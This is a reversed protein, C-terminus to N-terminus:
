VTSEYNKQRLLEVENVKKEIMICSRENMYKLKKNGSDNSKM